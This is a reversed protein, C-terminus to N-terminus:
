SLVHYLTHINILNNMQYIAYLIIMKWCVINEPNIDTSM